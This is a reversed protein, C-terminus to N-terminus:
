ESALRLLDVVSWVLNVADLYLQLAAAPADDPTLHLVVAGADHLVFGSFLVTGGAACALQLPAYPGALADLLGAGLLACLAAVLTGQWASLDRRALTAHGALAAFGALGAGAGALLLGGLGADAYAASAAGAPLALALALGLLALLNWPHRHQVAPFACVVGLAGVSGGLAAAPTRLAAAPPALAVWAAGAATVGLQAAVLAYVRAVLGARVYAPSADAAFPSAADLKRHQM